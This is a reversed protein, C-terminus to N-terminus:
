YSESSIYDSFQKLLEDLRKVLDRYDKKIEEVTRTNNDHQTNIATFEIRISTFREQLTQLALNNDRMYGTLNNNFREGENQIGKIYNSERLLEEKIFQKSAIYKIIPVMSPIAVALVGFFTQWIITWNTAYHPLHSVAVAVQNSIEVPDLGNTIVLNVINTLM